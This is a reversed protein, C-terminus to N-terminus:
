KAEYHRFNISTEVDQVVVYLGGEKGIGNLGNFYFGEVELRKEDHNKDTGDYECWVVVTHIEHFVYSVADTVQVVQGIRPVDGKLRKKYTSGDESRGVITTACGSIFMAALVAAIAIIKKM